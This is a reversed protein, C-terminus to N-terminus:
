TKEQFPCNVSFYGPIYVWLLILSLILNICNKSPNNKTKEVNQHLVTHGFHKVHQFIYFLLCADSFSLLGFLQSPLFAFSSFVLHHFSRSTHKLEGCFCRDSVEITQFGKLCSFLSALGSVVLMCKDGPNLCNLAVRHSLATLGQTSWATNMMTMVSGGTM